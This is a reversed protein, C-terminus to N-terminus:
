AQGPLAGNVPRCFKGPRPGIAAFNPVPTIETNALHGKNERKKAM